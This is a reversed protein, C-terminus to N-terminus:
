CYLVIASYLIVNVVHCYLLIPMAVGFLPRVLHGFMKVNARLKKAAAPKDGSINTGKFGQSSAILVGRWEDNELLANIHYMLPVNNKLRETIRELTTAVASESARALSQMIIDAEKDARKDERTEKKPAMIHLAVSCWAPQEGCAVSACCSTQAAYCAEPVWMGYSIITTLSTSRFLFVSLYVALSLSLCLCVYGSLSM